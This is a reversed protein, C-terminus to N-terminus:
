VSVRGKLYCSTAVSPSSALFNGAVWAELYEKALPYGSSSHMVRDTLGTCLM